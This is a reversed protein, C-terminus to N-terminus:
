HEHIDKKVVRSVLHMIGYALFAGITNALLDWWEDGGIVLSIGTSDLFFEFLENFVGLGSAFFYLAVWPQWWATFGIKYVKVVYAFLLAAVVGGLTHMTFTDTEASIPINPLTLALLWVIAAAWLHWAHKTYPLMRTRNTTFIFRVALWPAILLAIPIIVEYIM